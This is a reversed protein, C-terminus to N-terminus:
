DDGVMKKGYVDMRSIGSLRELSPALADIKDYVGLSGGTHWFMIRSNRFEEPKNM